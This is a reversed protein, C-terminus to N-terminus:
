EVYLMGILFWYLSIVQPVYFTHMGFGSTILAITSTILAYKISKNLNYNDNICNRKITKIIQFLFIIFFIFAVIGGEALIQLYQNGLNNVTETLLFYNSYKIYDSSFFPVNHIGVGLIPYKFIIRTGIKSAELRSSVQITDLREVAFERWRSLLDIEEYALYSVSIIIICLIVIGMKIKDIEKPWKLLMWYFLSFLFGISAACSGSVLLSLISLISAILGFSKIKKDKSFIFCSTSV